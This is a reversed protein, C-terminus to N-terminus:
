LSEGMQIKMWKKCIHTNGTEQKLQINNTEAKCIPMEKIQLLVRAFGAAIHTWKTINLIIITILAPLAFHSKLGRKRDNQQLSSTNMNKTKLTTFCHLSWTTNCPDTFVLKSVSWSRADPEVLKDLSLFCCFLERTSESSFSLLVVSLWWTLCSFHLCWPFYPPM